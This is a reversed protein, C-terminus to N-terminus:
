INNEQKFAPGTQTAPAELTAISLGSLGSALGPSNGFSYSTAGAVGSLAARAEIAQQANLDEFVPDNAAQCAFAGCLDGDFGTKLNAQFNYAAKIGM